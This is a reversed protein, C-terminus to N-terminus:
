VSHSRDIISIMVQNVNEGVLEHIKVTFFKDPRIYQPAYIFVTNKLILRELNLIDKISM